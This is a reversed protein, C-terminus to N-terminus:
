LSDPSTLKIGIASLCVKMVELSKTQESKDLFYLFRVFEFMEPILNRSNIYNGGCADASDIYPSYGAMLLMEGPDCDVVSALSIVKDRKPVFGDREILTMYSPDIKALMALQRRTFNKSKRKEKVYNAWAENRM